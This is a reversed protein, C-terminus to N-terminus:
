KRQCPFVTLRHKDSAIRANFGARLEELATKHAAEQAAMQGGLDRFRDALREVVYGVEKIRM